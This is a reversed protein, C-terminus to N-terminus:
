KFTSPNDPSKKWTLTPADCGYITNSNLIDEINVRFSNITRVMNDFTKQSLYVFMELAWRAERSGSLDRHSFGERNEKVTNVLVLNRDEM